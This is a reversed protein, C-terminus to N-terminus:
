QPDRSGAGPTRPAGPRAPRPPHLLVKERGNAAILGPLLKADVNTAILRVSGDAFFVNFGGPSFGGFREPGIPGSLDVAIDQPKTWPIRREATVALIRQSSGDVIDSFKTGDVPSTVTQEDAEGTAVGQTRLATRLDGDGNSALLAFYSAFSEERANSPHRYVAPMANLVRRNAESDWPEDKRYQKYAEEFGLFPLIEV